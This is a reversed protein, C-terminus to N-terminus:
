EVETGPEPSAYGPTRGAPLTVTGVVLDCDSAALVAACYLSKTHKKGLSVEDKKVFRKVSARVERLRFSVVEFQAVTTKNAGSSLPRRPLGARVTSYQEM